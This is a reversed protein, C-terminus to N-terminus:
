GFCLSKSPILNFPFVFVELSIQHLCVYPVKFFVAMSKTSLIFLLSFCVFTYLGILFQYFDPRNYALTLLPTCISMGQKFFLNPFCPIQPLLTRSPTPIAFHLFSIHAFYMTCMFLFSLSFFLFM